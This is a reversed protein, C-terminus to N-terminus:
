KTTARESHLCLSAIQATLILKPIQGTPIFIHSLTPTESVCPLSRLYLHCLSLYKSASIFRAIQHSITM